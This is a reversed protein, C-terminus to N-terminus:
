GKLTSIVPEFGTLPVLDCDFETTECGVGLTASDKHPNKYSHATAIGRNCDAHKSPSVLRM